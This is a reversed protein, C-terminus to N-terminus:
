DLVLFADGLEAQPSAIAQRLASELTKHVDMSSLFEDSLNVLAQLEQSRQQIRDAQASVSALMSNFARALEGFEDQRDLSVTAPNTSCGPHTPSPSGDPYAGALLIYGPCGGTRHRHGVAM